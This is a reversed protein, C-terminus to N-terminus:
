AFSIWHTCYPYSQAMLSYIRYLDNIYMSGFTDVISCCFPEIENIRNIFEVIEIDTYGLIDVPQVFLKYGKEKIKRCFDLVEFREHKFFCARVADFSKGTYDDLNSITYRSYDALVTFKSNGREIPIYKEAHSGNLFVTKGDGFGDDQLFGIEIMDIKAEVLGNIIGYIVPDGFKKDIIYAGDRLTCDLIQAQNM